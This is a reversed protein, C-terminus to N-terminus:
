GGADVPHDDVDPRLVGALKMAHNGSAQVDRSGHEFPPDGHVAWPAVGVDAAEVLLQDQDTVVAVGRDQCGAVKNLEAEVSGTVDDAPEFGPAGPGASRVM